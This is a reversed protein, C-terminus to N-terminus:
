VRWMGSQLLMIQMSVFLVTFSVCMCFCKVGFRESMQFDAKMVTQTSDCLSKVLM